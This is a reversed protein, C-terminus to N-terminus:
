IDDFPKKMKIRQRRGHVATATVSNNCYKGNGDSSVGREGGVRRWGRKGIEGKELESVPPNFNASSKLRRRRERHIQVQVVCCFTNLKSLLCAVLGYNLRVRRFRRLSSQLTGEELIKEEIEIMTKLPHTRYWPDFLQPNQSVCVM